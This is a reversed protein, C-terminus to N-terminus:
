FFFFDIKMYKRFINKLMVYCKVLKTQSYKLGVNIKSRWFIPCENTSIYNKDAGTGGGGMGTIDLEMQNQLVLLRFHDCSYNEHNNLLFSSWHAKNNLFSWSVCFSTNENNTYTYKNQMHM